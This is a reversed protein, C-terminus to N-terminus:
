DRRDEAVQRHPGLPRQRQAPADHGDELHRGRDAQQAAVHDARLKQFYAPAQPKMQVPRIKRALAAKKRTTRSSRCVFASIPCVLGTRVFGWAGAYKWLQPGIVYGGLLGVATTVEFIAMVRGRLPLSGETRM